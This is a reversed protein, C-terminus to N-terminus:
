KIIEDLIEKAGYKHVMVALIKLRAYDERIFRYGKNPGDFASSSSDKIMFWTHGDKKTYGVLHICHDDTSAGNNIRFERSDQNIYKQPIDFDPIIGVEEYRDYGPESVDGCISVTYGQELASTLVSIFDDLKLNYYSDDHWWNDPEELEGKQNYTKSMTSMFCFYDDPNLKTVEVMYEKPSMEKEQVKVVTPPETMYFNLISKVNSVVADKDWLNNEKVYQLYSKIEKSMKSHDDFRQGKLKGAYQGAPLLGHKKMIKPVANTESGQGFYMDGRHEVFYEAREVYEWYVIYMESLKLQQGTQRYIESEMLSIGAYCWCTGTNGQSLPQNHWQQNYDKPETPFKYQNFDVSLYKKPEKKHKTNEFDQIGTLISDQYFGSKSEKYIARDNQAFVYWSFVMFIATLTYIKM